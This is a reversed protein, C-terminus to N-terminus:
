FQKVNVSEVLITEFGAALEQVFEPSVLVELQMDRIRTITLGDFGIHYGIHTDSRTHAYTDPTFRTHAWTHTHSEHATVAVLDMVDKIKAVMMGQVARATNLAVQEAIVAAPV